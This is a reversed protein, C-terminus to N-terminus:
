EAIASPVSPKMAFGVIAGSELQPLLREIEMRVYTPTTNLAAHVLAGDELRSLEGLADVVPLLPLKEALPLCGGWASVMGRATAQRMGEGVFRTKGVGADGVVLLMSANSDLARRLVALERERGVFGMPAAVVALGDARESATLSKGRGDPRRATNRAGTSDRPMGVSGLACGADRLRQM